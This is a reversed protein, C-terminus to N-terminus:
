RVATVSYDAANLGSENFRIDVPHRKSGCTVVWRERWVRSGPEGQPMAVVYPQVSDIHTCGLTSVQQRVGTMTDQRLKENTMTGEVAAGEKGPSDAHVSLASLLLATALLPQRM